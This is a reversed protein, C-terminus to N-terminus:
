RCGGLGWVLIIRGTMSYHEGDEGDPFSIDYTMILRAIKTRINMLALPKGICSYAGLSFPTYASRAKLLEPHSYWRESIFSLPDSYVESSRGLVWQSCFVTVSGSYVDWEWLLGKVRRIGLFLSPAPPHLRLTENIFGGLHPLQAITSHLYDGSPDREIPALEARLKNVEAPHRALRYLLTTLTTATTDSGATIVLMANGMLLNFEDMTPPKGNLPALFSACIDPIEVKDGMRDVLKRTAFRVFQHFDSTLAPMTILCRFVWSPLYYQFPVVGKLLVEIAWHNRSTDLMGFSRGFALDAMVDYSYLNFRIRSENGRLRADGFATSWVRRRTDHESRSRYVHLSKMPHGNDYFTSKTYPSRPGYIQPVASPHLISVNSPGVRVVPGYQGHLDHILIYAPRYHLKASLWLGSIRALYPGPIHNLPHFHARYLTLSGFVGFFYAIALDATTKLSTYATIDKTLHLSYYLAFRNYITNAEKFDLQHSLIDIAGALLYPRTM